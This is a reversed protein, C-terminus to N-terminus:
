SGQDIERARGKADSEGEVGLGVVIKLIQWHCALEGRREQRGKEIEEELKRYREKDQAERKLSLERVSKLFAAPDLDDEDDQQSVDDTITTTISELSTSLALPSQHSPLQQSTPTPRPSMDVASSAAMNFLLCLTLLLPDRDTTGTPAHLQPRFAEQVSDTLDPLVTNYTFALHSPPCTEACRRM